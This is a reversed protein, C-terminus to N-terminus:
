QASKRRGDPLSAGIWIVVISLFAAFFCWVSIVFNRFFIVSFLYSVLFGVGLWKMREHSSIFPSIVTAAIYPVSCVWILKRISDPIGFSYHIHHHMAMPHVPYLVFICGVAISVAIGFYLLFTLIRRRRPDTELLRVSFPIWTPWVMWAFFLFLYTFIEQSTGAGPYRLMVWLLGEVTQQVSFILPIVAVFGSFNNKSKDIRGRRCCVFGGRGWFKSRGFFV